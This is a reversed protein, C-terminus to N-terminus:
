SYPPHQTEHVYTATDVDATLGLMASHDSASEELSQISPNAADPGSGGGSGSNPMHAFFLQLQDPSQSRLVKRAFRPLKYSGKAIWRRIPDTAYALAENAHFACVWASPRATVSSKFTLDKGDLDAWKVGEVVCSEQALLLSPDLVKVKFVDGADPVITIRFRDLASEVNKHLPIVNSASHVPVYVAMLEDRDWGRQYIHAAKVVRKDYRGGLAVCPLTADDTRVAPPDYTSLCTDRWKDSGQSSTVPHFRKRNFHVVVTRIEELVKKVKSAAQLNEKRVLEAREQQIAAREQQIAAVLQQIAALEQQIAALQQRLPAREPHGDPLQDLEKELQVIKRQVRDKEARAATALPAPSQLM